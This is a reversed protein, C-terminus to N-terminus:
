AARMRPNARVKPLDTTMRSLNDRAAPSREGAVADAVADLRVRGDAVARSVAALLAPWGGEVTLEWDGRLLELVAVEVYGLNRRRMNNRRSVEVGPLGTPAPGAVTLSPRAPVQTTLGLARAASYGTPGVGARGLVEIATEEARPGTLGYRTKVGKYYLGNRLRLLEGRAHARSVASSAAGRGGPLRDVHIFSGVPLAALAKGPSVM